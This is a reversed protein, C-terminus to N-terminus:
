AHVYVHVYSVHVRGMHRFPERVEYCVYDFKLTGLTPVAWDRMRTLGERSLPVGGLSANRWSLYYKHTLWPRERCAAEQPCVCVCVCVCPCVSM